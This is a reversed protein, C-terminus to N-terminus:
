FKQIILKEGSVSIHKKSVDFSIIFTGNNTFMPQNWAYRPELNPFTKSVWELIYTLKELIVPNKIKSLYDEFVKM